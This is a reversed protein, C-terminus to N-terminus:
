RKKRSRSGAPAPASGMAPVRMGLSEALEVATALPVQTDKLRNLTPSLTLGVTLSFDTRTLTCGRFNSGTLETGEFDADTLDLDFFNAEQASCRRVDTKRLSLGVFSAYRLVCGEFSVEPNSSVSSWDIGMLKSGEFRVGRLAAQSFKARTLDCGQFTCDEFKCLSWQSEQFQCRTFTCQFFEKQRLGLGPLELDAFTEHEFSEESRLRRALAEADAPNQAPSKTEMSM